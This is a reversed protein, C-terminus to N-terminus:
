FVRICVFGFVGVSVRYMCEPKAKGDDVVGLAATFLEGLFLTDSQDFSLDFAVCVPQGFHFLLKRRRLGAVPALEVVGVGLLDLFPALADQSAVGSFWEKGSVIM